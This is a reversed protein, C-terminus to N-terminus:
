LEGAKGERLSDLVYTKHDAASLNRTIWGIARCGQWVGERDEAGEFQRLSVILYKLNDIALRLKSADSDDLGALKPRPAQGEPPKDTKKPRPKRPPTGRPNQPDM